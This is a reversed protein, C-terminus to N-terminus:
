FWKDLTKQGTDSAYLLREVAKSVREGSFDHMECLFKTIASADPKRWKLEYDPTVDPHLFLDRIEALYKIDTNLEKLVGEISGHKKISKLAKKPGIGKIGENYDTGVLIAIDVLQERSIELKILGEELDIIEPKVDVYVGKGPLKRKGTVALNRVVLPTGFLLADYDQSGAAYADKNQVMFAAQSEGESPATFVPIGMFGLLSKADDVMNGKVHSSAQAYKFADESGAMKAEEWKAMAETRIKKREKLIDFKLEPPVGDFVFVPKIGEEVLNTTRYLFGSLHSTIEGHSDLLPTGDRQRIISLFQYLTNYADIAIVKGKLEPLEIEKREFLDGLDVGM